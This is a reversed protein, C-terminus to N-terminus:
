ILSDSVLIILKNIVYYFNIISILLFRIYSELITSVSYCSLINNNSCYKSAGGESELDRLSWILGLPKSIRM